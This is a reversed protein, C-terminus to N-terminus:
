NLNSVSFGLFVGHFDIIITLGVALTGLCGPVSALEGTCGVEAAEGDLREDGDIALGEQLLVVDGIECTTFGTARVMEGLVEGDFDKGTLGILGTVGIALDEPYVGDMTGM